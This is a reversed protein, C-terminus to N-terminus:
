QNVFQSASKLHELSRRSENAQTQVASSLQMEAERHKKPPTSFLLLLLFSPCTLCPFSYVGISVGKLPLFSYVDIHSVYAQKAEYEEILVPVRALQDTNCLLTTKVQIALPSVFPSFTPYSRFCVKEKNQKPFLVLRSIFICLSISGDYVISQKSCHMM